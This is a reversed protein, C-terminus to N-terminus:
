QKEQLSSVMVKIEGSRNEIHIESWNKKDKKRHIEISQKRNRDIERNRCIKRETKSKDIEKNGIRRDDWGWKGFCSTIAKFLSRVPRATNSM